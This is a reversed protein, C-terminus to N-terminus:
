GRQLDKVGIVEAPIEFFGLRGKYRIPTKYAVPNALQFGYPGAFWPSSSETVCGVIDVEGIIAGRPIHKSSMMMVPMAPLGMQLLAEFAEKDDKQSAHVYIRQPIQFWKPLAWSRNEIDKRIVKNTFEVRQSGDGNDVGEFVPLGMVILSAWPQKISLAKM